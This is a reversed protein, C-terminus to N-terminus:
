NFERDLLQAIRAMAEIMDPEDYREADQRVFDGPSLEGRYGAARRDYDAIARHLAATECDDNKCAAHALKAVRDAAKALNFLAEDM